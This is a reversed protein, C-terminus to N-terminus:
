GIIRLIEAFETVYSAMVSFGYRAFVGTLMLPAHRLAHKILPWRFERAQATIRRRCVREAYGLRHIRMFAEPVEAYRFRIFMMPDRTFFHVGGSAEVLTEGSIQIPGHTACYASVYLQVTLNKLGSPWSALARRAVATRYILVTTLALGGWRSPDPNDLMREFLAKGAHTFIDQTNPFCREFILAGTRAHRSSFNLILMSLDPHERLARVVYPLAQDSIQDDDSITWVFAGNAAAICAAINRVAGINEPHRQTRLSVGAFAPRWREIVAPTEDPSCNDSILVECSDGLGAVAQSLWALQRDLLAARNYTPLAITLLTEM